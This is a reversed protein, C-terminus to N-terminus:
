SIAQAKQAKAKKPKPKPSPSQAQAEDKSFVLLFFKLHNPGQGNKRNVVDKQNEDYEELQLSNTWSNQIGAYLLTLKNKCNFSSSFPLCSKTTTFLPIESFSTRYISWTPFIQKPIIIHKPFLGRLHHCGNPPIFFDDRVNRLWSPPSTLVKPLSFSLFPFCRPHSLILGMDVQGEKDKEQKSTTPPHTLDQKVKNIKLIQKQPCHLAIHGFSLCKFCKTNSTKTPSKPTSPKTTSVNKPFITQKSFNSPSNQTFIKHADKRSSNYFDDDHTNKFTKNLLYSEVKIAKRFVSKLSSYEKLEVFDRIDRKLGRVFWKIKSEENANMNKGLLIM